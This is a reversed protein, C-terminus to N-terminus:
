APRGSRSELRADAVQSGLRHDIHVAGDGFNQTHRPFFAIDGPAIGGLIERPGADGASALGGMGHGARCMRSRHISFLLELLDGGLSEASLRLLVFNRVLADKALAAARPMVRAWAAWRAM